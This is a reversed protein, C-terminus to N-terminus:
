RYTCFDEYDCASCRVVSHVALFVGDGKQDRLHRDLAIEGSEGEGKYWRSFGKHPCLTKDNVWVHWEMVECDNEVMFDLSVEDEAEDLVATVTGVRYGKSRDCRGAAAWLDSTIGSEFEDLSTSTYWGWNKACGPILCTGEEWDAWATENKKEPANGFNRESEIEGSSLNITYGIPGYGSGFPTCDAYGSEPLVVNPYNQVYTPEIVECVQYLVGPQIQSYTYLGEPDTVVEVPLPDGAKYFHIKWGSLAPEEAGWLGDWDLDYWKYGSLAGYISCTDSAQAEWSDSRGTEEPLTVLAHVTNEVESPGPDTDAVGTTQCLLLSHPLVEVPTGAPGPCGPGSLDEDFTVILSLNWANAFAVTFTAEEGAEVLPSTCTKTLNFVPLERENTFNIHRVNNCQLSVNYCPGVLSQWSLREEECVRYTDPELDCFAYAGTQNTTTTAIVNMDRDQLTIEWEELGEGTDFDFKYGSICMLQQNTFNQHRIDEAMLVVDLCTPTIPLWGEKPDECIRYEGPAWGCFAYAGNSDTTTTAVEESDAYLKITWGPIGEGRCHDIKHGGICGVPVNFFDQEVVNMCELRVDRCPVDQSM